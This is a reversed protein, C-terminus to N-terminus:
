IAVTTPLETDNIPIAKANICMTFSLWYSYALVTYPMLKSYYNNFASLQVQTILRKM